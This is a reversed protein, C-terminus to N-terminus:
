NDTDFDSEQQAKILLHQLIYSSQRPYSRNDALFGYSIPKRLYPADHTSSPFSGDPRQRGLLFNYACEIHKKYNGLGISTATILAAGVAGSSMIVEPFTQFCGCKISGIETVGTSLFKALKELVIKIREDNTIEYYYSLDLFEFANYSYCLYHEREVAYILEGNNNQSLQIFRIMKDNFRLFKADNTIRYLEALFWLVLTTNNPVRMTPSDFYGIALSNEYPQFGIRNILFNYWKLAGELYKSEKTWKFTELLGLSAWTGEVTAAHEKWSKLPYDWSGDKKQQDIIHKSCAIALNKYKLDGANKFLNWNSKIWYGQAQLFYYDDSWNIFSLYSKIFRFIRLDLMVGTDPGIIAQGNWFNNLIYNHLRIASDFYKNEM